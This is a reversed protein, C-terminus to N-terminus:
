AFPVCTGQVCTAPDYIVTGPLLASLDGQKFAETPVTALGFGAAPFKYKELSSMWFLKNRGDYIKPIYVPGSVVFGYDHQNKSRNDIGGKNAFFDNADLAKNRLFEYGTGHIMNTGSKMVLNVIGSSTRGYEASFNNTQVRFEQVAEVSVGYNFSPISPRTLQITAGDVLIDTGYWQGGNLKHAWFGGGAIEGSYGPVLSLFYVPNRVTGEVTLPLNLIYDSKVATSIESTDSKLQSAEATVEVRDTPAGVQLTVDLTVTDGVSVTIGHQVHDRFGPAGVEVLYTGPVLNPFYYNGTGGSLTSAKAGTETHTISISARPVAAGSSDAIAGTLSGRGIQAAANITLVLLGTIVLCLRLLLGCGNITMTGEWRYILGPFRPM